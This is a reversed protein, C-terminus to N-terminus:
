GRWQFAVDSRSEAREKGSPVFARFNGALCYKLGDKKGKCRAPQARLERAIDDDPRCGGGKTLQQIQNNQISKRVKTYSIKHPEKSISSQKKALKM